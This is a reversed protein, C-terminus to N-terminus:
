KGDDLHKEFDPKIKLVISDLQKIQTKTLKDRQAAFIIPAWYSLNGGKFENALLALKREEDKNEAKLTLTGVGQSLTGKKGPAIVKINM